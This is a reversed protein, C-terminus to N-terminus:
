HKQSCKNYTNGLLFFAVIGCIKLYVQITIGNFCFQANLDLFKIRRLTPKHICFQQLM